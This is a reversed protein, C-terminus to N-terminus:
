RRGSRNSSILMLWVTTRFFLMINPLESTILSLLESMRRLILFEVQVEENVSAGDIREGNVVM